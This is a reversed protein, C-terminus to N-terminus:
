VLGKRDWQLKLNDVGQSLWKDVERRSYKINRKGESVARGFDPLLYRKTTYLRSRSVGLYDAIEQVTMLPNKQSAILEDLKREISELRQEMYMGHEM